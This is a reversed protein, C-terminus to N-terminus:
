SPAGRSGCRSRPRRRTRPRPRCAATSSSSALGLTAYLLFAAELATGLGGPLVGGLLQHLAFWIALNLIVGVV